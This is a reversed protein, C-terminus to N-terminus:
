LSDNRLTAASKGEFDFNVVCLPVVPKFIQAAECDVNIDVSVATSSTTGSISAGADNDGSTVKSIDLDDSM